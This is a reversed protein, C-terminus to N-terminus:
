SAFGRNYPILGVMFLPSYDSVPVVNLGGGTDQFAQVELYDGASLQLSASLPIHTSLVAVAVPPLLALALWGGSGNKLLGLGRASGGASAAFGANISVQYIGARQVTVRSPNTTLSHIDAPDYEETDWTLTTWTGSPISQNVSNTLRCAIPRGGVGRTPRGSIDATM